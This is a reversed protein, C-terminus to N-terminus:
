RFGQLLANHEMQERNIIAMQDTDVGGAGGPIKKLEANM